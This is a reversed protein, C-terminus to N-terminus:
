SNKKPFKLSEVIEYMPSAGMRTAFVVFDMVEWGEGTAPASLDAGPWGELKGAPFPAAGRYKRALTIHPSYPRNEPVFGLPGTAAVVRRHLAELATRDGAVGAWLVRPAKATGFTGARSLELKFPSAEAAAAKLADILAPIRERGTDGLFQLTIHYDEPHVWKAFELERSLRACDEGLATRLPEPLRVAIFLREPRTRNSDNHM